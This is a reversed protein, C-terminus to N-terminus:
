FSGRAVAWLKASNSVVPTSLVTAVPNSPFLAYTLNDTVTFINKDKIERVLIQMNLM